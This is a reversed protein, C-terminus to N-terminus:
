NIVGTPLVTCPDSQANGELKETLAMVNDEHSSAELAQLRGNWSIKLCLPLVKEHCLVDGRKLAAFCYDLFTYFHQTAPQVDKDVICLM